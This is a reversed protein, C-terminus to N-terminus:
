HGFLAMAAGLALGSLTLTLLITRLSFRYVPRNAFQHNAAVVFAVCGALSAPTMFIALYWPIILWNLAPPLLEYQFAYFIGAIGFVIGVHLLIAPLLTFSDTEVNKRSILPAVVFGTIAAYPIALISILGLYIVAGIPADVNRATDMLFLIGFFSVPVAFLTVLTAIGRPTM